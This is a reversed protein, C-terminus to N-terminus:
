KHNEKEKEDSLKYKMRINMNSFSLKNRWERSSNKNQFNSRYRSHQDLLYHHNRALIMSSNFKSDFIFWVMFKGTRIKLKKDNFLNWNIKTYFDRWHYLSTIVSNPLFIKMNLKSLFDRTWLCKLVDERNYCLKRKL